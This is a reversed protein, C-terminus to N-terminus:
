APPAGDEHASCLFKPFLKELLGYLVAIVVTWATWGVILKGVYIFQEPTLMGFRYATALGGAILLILLVWTVKGM